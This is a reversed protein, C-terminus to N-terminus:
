IIGYDKRINKIKSINFTIYISTSETHNIPYSLNKYNQNLMAIQGYDINVPQSNQETIWFTNTDYMRTLPLVISIQQNDIFSNSYISNITNKPVNFYLKPVSSYYVRRITIIPKIIQKIFQKYLFNFSSCFYGDFMNFLQNKHIYSMMQHDFGVNKCIVEAFPFTKINYDILTIGNNM